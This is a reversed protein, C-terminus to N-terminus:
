FDLHYMKMVENEFGDEVERVVEVPWREWELYLSGHEKKWIGFDSNNERLFINEYFILNDKWNQHNVKMKMFPQESFTSHIFRMKKPTLWHSTVYDNNYKPYKDGSFRLLSSSLVSKAHKLALASFVLDEAGKDPIEEDMITELLSRSLFYGAGGSAFKDSLIFENGGFDANGILTKLREIQIYTDDDCKFVYDFEYNNLVHRYCERVKGPLFEYTDDVDLSLTDLEDNDGGVFFLHYIGRENHQLWTDRCAQRLELSKESNCSCILILIKM